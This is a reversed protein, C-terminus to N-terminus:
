LRELLRSLRKESVRIGAEELSRLIRDLFSKYDLSERVTGLNVVVVKGTAPDYLRLIDVDVGREKVRYVDLQRLGLQEVILRYRTHIKALM